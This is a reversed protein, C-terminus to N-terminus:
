EDGTFITKSFDTEKERNDGSGHLKGKNKRENLKDINTLAIDNMTLGFEWAVNAIYWLVDGLEKKIAVKDDDNWIGEKDRIIKKVKEAVEGSEGCLGLVPYTINGGLNPYIATERALMQYDNFEM